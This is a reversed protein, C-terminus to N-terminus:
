AHGGTPQVKRDAAPNELLSQPDIIFVISGDGLTTAGGIGALRDLPFALSKVFAERQGILQDVVLGVKRGRVESIVVQIAGSMPQHSLQLIKRMSLLPVLENGLRIMKQRGSSRIDERTVELTRLVRTLPIGVTKGECGVLLVRIIAVSLPLHIQIRTGAGATSGIQLTGGFQEVASKVVDMGVGRGSTETIEAATSFGPVCILQFLEREAITQAQAASLLGREVAKRRIAEPDLGRGDDRVEILVLDKERSASVVVEGATEIGHDIANRVMHMLPDALAELIARDLEVEEGEIRLGVSKGTRRELDRVQRSLRGTVSSVPMMRVQLVHHHLDTILRSLHDLGLKLDQPRNEAFAAQLMYRNTILEGALNIFEDLLGTRVRVTQEREERRVPQPREIMCSVRFVDSMALLREKVTGAPKSTKLRMELRHVAGGQLLQHEDPVCDLLRGQGALDRVLLLARAAPAVAGSALEVVIKLTEGRSAGP